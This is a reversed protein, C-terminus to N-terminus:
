PAGDHQQDQKTHCGGRVPGDENGVGDSACCGNPQLQQAHKTTVITVPPLAHEIEIPEVLPIGSM